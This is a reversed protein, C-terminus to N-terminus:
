KKKLYGCIIQAKPNRQTFHKRVVFKIGKTSSQKSQRNKEKLSKQDNTM